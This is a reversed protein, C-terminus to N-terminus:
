IEEQYKYKVRMYEPDQMPTTLFHDKLDACAFRAGIDSDSITSNLILKTELLSATPSRADAEYPLRDGGVTLRTRYKESKLPRIDCIFNGYTVVKGIPVESKHIFHITDTGIIGADNGQALRGFENSVSKNWIASDPGSLLSDITEDFIHNAHLAFPDEQLPANSTIHQMAYNDFHNQQSRFPNNYNPVTQQYPLQVNPYTYNKLPPLQQFRQTTNPRMNYSSSMGARFGDNTRFYNSHRNDFFTNRTQQFTPSPTHIFQPQIVPSPRQPLLPSFQM